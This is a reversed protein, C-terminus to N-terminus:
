HDRTKDTNRTKDPINGDVNCVPCPVDQDHEDKGWAHGNCTDCIKTKMAQAARLFEAYEWKGIRIAIKNGVWAHLLGSGAMTFFCVKALGPDVTSAFFAALLGSVTGLEALGYVAYLVLLLVDRPSGSRPQVRFMTMISLMGIFACAFGLYWHEYVFFGLMSIFMLRGPNLLGWRSLPSNLSIRMMQLVKNM